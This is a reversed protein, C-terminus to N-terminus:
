LSYNKYIQYNNFLLIINELEGVFAFICYKQSSDFDNAPKMGIKSLVTQCHQGSVVITEEGILKLYLNLTPKNQEARYM